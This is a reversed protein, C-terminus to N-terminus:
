PPPTGGTILWHDGFRAIALHGDVTGHVSMGLVPPDQPRQPNAVVVVSMADFRPAPQATAAAPSPQAIKQRIQDLRTGADATAALEPSHERLALAEIALDAVVDVAMQRATAPAVDAQIRRVGPDVSVAPLSGPLTIAPRMPLVALAPDAAAVPRDRGGIVALGGAAIALVEVAILVHIVPRLASAAGGRGFLSRLWRQTRDGPSAATPSVKELLPRLACVVVLAALVGVKTSFESRAGAAFLAAALGVGAGYLTRGVRGAPTTKPDTIMFFMFVLIEPSLALVWWYSGGCVPGVHWRATMCHGRAAVLGTAAAFTLWFAAALGLLRLRSVIVLGGAVILALTLALWGSMPGWWLDQPNVTRTGLVGFVAVLGLNSPNFIHRGTGPWRLAYKSLLSVAAAGAFIGAGHLSWWDGHRTGVVRLIFAVGNGTLLASAPWLLVRRRWFTIGVELVACTLVSVLIQAVSLEFGLVTQGLVQLSVIVAALHLRPDRLTPLVVPYAHRGIRITPPPRAPGTRPSAVPPTTM